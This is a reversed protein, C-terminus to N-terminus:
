QLTREPCNDFHWSSMTNAAGLKSCHPCQIKVRKTGTITKSIRAKVEATMGDKAQKRLFEIREPTLLAKHAESMKKRTEESAKKGISHIGLKAKVDPRNMAEKTKESIRVKAEPTAHRLHGKVKSKAEESWKLGSAGEGGHTQNCLPYGLDKFCSIIFKEHDFADKETSWEALIEIKVGHKNKVNNWHKNRYNMEFARRGQGKGVYFPANDSARYHVYTYFM